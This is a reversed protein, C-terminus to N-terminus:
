NISSSKFRIIHAEKYQAPVPSKQNIIHYQVKSFKVKSQLHGKDCQDFHQVYSKWIVRRNLDRTFRKKKPIKSFFIESCFFNQRSFSEFPFRRPRSCLIDGNVRLAKLDKLVGDIWRTKSRGRRIGDNYPQSIWHLKQQCTIPRGGSM